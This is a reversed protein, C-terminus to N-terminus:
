EAEVQPLDSVFVEGSKVMVGNPEYIKYRITASTQGEFWQHGFGCANRTCNSVFHEISQDSAVESEFAEVTEDWSKTTYPLGTLVVALIKKM